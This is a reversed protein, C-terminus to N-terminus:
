SEWGPLDVFLFRANPQSTSRSTIFNGGKQADLVADCLDALVTAEYGYAIGGSPVRFKIPNKIVESLNEPVFPNLAKTGIFRALRDGEGRGATGQSMDMGKLM